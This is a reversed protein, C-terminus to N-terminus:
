SRVACYLMSVRSGRVSGQQTVDILRGGSAEIIEEVISRNIYHIEVPPMGRIRKWFRRLPGRKISYIKAGLSGPDHRPGSPIQFLAVGGPRLIRFFEAIYKSSAEPPSHQLSINSYVFDFSADQLQALDDTTNVFYECRDGFRNHKNASEIMSYSIDIGVAGDFEECLAQTLRGVGCGFDMARGRNVEIGLKALHKMADAIEQRGSVFFEDVDWRNGMADKRSLVAYLPDEKGYEEYTKQVDKLSM